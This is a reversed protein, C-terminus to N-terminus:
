PEHARIQSRKFKRDKYTMPFSPLLFVTGRTRVPQRLLIWQISRHFEPFKNFISRRFEARQTPILAAARNLGGGCGMRGLGMGDNGHWRMLRLPDMCVQLLPHLVHVHVSVLFDSRLFSCSGYHWAEHPSLPWSLDPDRSLLHRRSSLRPRRINKKKEWNWM